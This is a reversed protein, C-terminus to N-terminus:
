FKSIKDLLIDKKNLEPHEIVVALSKGLLNGIEHGQYGAIKLDDGNIALHSILYPENNKLINELMAKQPTVDKGLVESLNLFDTVADPNSNSLMIKLDCAKQPFPLSTLLELNKAYSQMVNSAKLEKLLAQLNCGSLFAFAFLRLNIQQPLLGLATYDPSKKIGLFSLAGSDTLPKLAEVNKGCVAKSLESLIRERSIKQLLPSCEIAASLTASECEFGLVSAFRFLRLIRLADETFRTKPDGVTRLIGAKLDVKGGFPDVIGKSPSYAMANVTFDRRALDEEVSRVFSVSNPHRSDDYDGETRFTTVELPTSDVIVTVTGHKIGTPVTKEFLDMIEQPTAATTIDFDAPTKNLLMDRVCGGVVYSDFGANLLTELVYETKQPIKFM